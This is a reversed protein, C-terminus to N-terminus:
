TKKGPDKAPDQGGPHDPELAREMAEKTVPAGPTVAALPEPKETEDGKGANPDPSKPPTDEGVGNGGAAAPPAPPQSEPPPTRSSKVWANAEDQNQFLLWQQIEDVTCVRSFAPASLFRVLYKEGPKIEKMIQCTNKLENNQVIIAIMGLM